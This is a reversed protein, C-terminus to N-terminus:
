RTLQRSLEEAATHAPDRPYVDAFDVLLQRATPRDGADRALRALQLTDASKQPRFSPNMKLHVRVLDLAEGTRRADLMRRLLPQALREALRNDPWQSAQQYLWKAEFLPDSSNEVHAAATQLANLHSGGRWQAYIRDILQARERDRVREQEQSSIVVDAIADDIGAEERYERLAAGVGAFLALWAYMLVALTIPLPLSMRNVAFACAGLLVILLAVLQVYDNRMQAALKCIGHLNLAQFASGSASQAAIMGPLLSCSVIAILAAAWVFSQLATSYLAFFCGCLILLFPARGNSVPNMMEIALVPPERKGLAASDLLIFAYNFFGTLLVIGLPIGLVRAKIAVWLLLALMLIVLLAATHLPFRLIESLKVRM